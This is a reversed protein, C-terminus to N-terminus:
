VRKLESRTEVKGDAAPSSDPWAAHARPTLSAVDAPAPAPTRLGVERSLTCLTLMSAEALMRRYGAISRALHNYILVAPIAAALGMATALLAEAIGPAVVAVSTLHSQSIGLFSNMIGWVTGALGIFPATAGISALTNTGRLTHHIARSEIVPLQATVREEIGDLARRTPTPGGRQLELAAAQVMETIAWYKVGEADKLIDARRLTATDKRLLRAARRLEATKAIWLTWTIVSAILLIVMVTKVVPDAQEILQLSSRNIAVSQTAASAGQAAGLLTVALFLTFGRRCAGGLDTWRSLDCQRV